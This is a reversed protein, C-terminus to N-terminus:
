LLAVPDVPEFVNGPNGPRFVYAPGGNIALRERRTFRRLRYPQRLDAEGGSLAVALRLM